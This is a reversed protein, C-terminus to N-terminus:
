NIIGWIIGIITVTGVVLAILVNAKNWNSEKPDKGTKISQNKIKSKNNIIVNEANLTNLKEEKTKMKENVWDSIILELNNYDLNKKKLEKRKKIITIIQYKIHKYFETKDGKFYHLHYEIFSTCKYLPDFKELFDVFSHDLYNNIMQFKEKESYNLKNTAYLISPYLSVEFRDTKPNIPSYNKTWKGDSLLYAEEMIIEALEDESEGKYQKKPLHVKFYNHHKIM